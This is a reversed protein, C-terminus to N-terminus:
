RVMGESAKNSFDNALSSVLLEEHNTDVILFILTMLFMMQFASLSSFLWSEFAASFLASLIFPIMIRYNRVKQVATFLFGLYCALGIFGTNVMFGLYSNHVGGQHGSHWLQFTTKEGFNYEECAFGCGILPSKEILDIAHKWAFIRGSGSGFEKIRFYSELGLTYVLQELDINYALIATMPLLIGLFAIRRFQGGELGFALVFFLAVSFIANRSSCMILSVILLAWAATKFRLSFQRDRKFLYYTMPIVSAVFMGMGNPNGLLGNYRAGGYSVIEPAVPMMLFGLALIALFLYLMDVILQRGYREFKHHVYNFAVFYLIVFSFTKNLGTGLTPSFMLALLAVWVFPAFYLMLGNTRYYNNQLEYITMVFMFIMIEVRLPKMFQLFDQRNDGIILTILFLIIISGHENKYFLYGVGFATVALSAPGFAMGSFMMIPFILFFLISHREIVELL